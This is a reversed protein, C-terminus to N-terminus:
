KKEKENIESPQERNVPGGIVPRSGLGLIAYYDALALYYKVLANVEQLRAEATALERLNVVLITGKGGKFKLIELDEVQKTLKVTQQAREREEYARVLASVVNQVEASIKERQFRELANIQAIQSQATLVKGRALRRQLPVNVLVGAEQENRDLSSKEVGIDIEAKLYLNVRPLIQNRAFGLEVELKERRLAFAQLEPRVRFALDIDQPLKTVDPLLPDPFPPARWLVDPRLPRGAQNRLFLSLDISAQEFARRFVVLGVRRAEVLRRNDLVEFGAIRELEFQRTLLKDREEAIELLDKAIQFRRAAAIWGWYALSAGRVFDLRKQFINPEALQRGIRAKTRTARRNDIERNQLLPMTMIGFLAGGQATQRDQYYSPYDGAGMRYGTSVDIGQFALGQNFGLLFRHSDFSDRKVYDFGDFNLDFAGQSSLFQGDAIGREQFAALLLPYSQEVSILVQKLTLLPLTEPKPGDSGPSPIELTSFPSLDPLKRVTNEPLKQKAQILRIASDSHTPSAVVPIQLEFSQYPVNQQAASPLTTILLFAVTGLSGLVCHIVRDLM